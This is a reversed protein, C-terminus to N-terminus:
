GGVDERAGDFVTIINEVSGVGAGAGRDAGATAGGAAAGGCGLAGRPTELGPKRGGAGLTSFGVQGFSGAVGAAGGGRTLEGPKGAGGAAAVGDGAPESGEGKSEGGATGRM